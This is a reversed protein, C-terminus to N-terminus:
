EAFEYWPQPEARWGDTLHLGHRALEQELRALSVLGFGFTRLLEERTMSTLEEITRILNIKLCKSTRTDMRLDDLTPRSM